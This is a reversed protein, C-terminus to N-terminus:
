YEDPYEEEKPLGVGNIRILFYDVAEEEALTYNFKIVDGDDSKFCCLNHTYGNQAKGSSVWAESIESFSYYKGNVPNTQYFIGREGVLTKAFLFRYIQFIIIILVVVTFLGTFILAGNGSQYLWFSVGGFILLMLFSPIFSFKDSGIKYRISENEPLKM